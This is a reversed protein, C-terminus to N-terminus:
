LLINEPQDTEVISYEIDGYRWIFYDITAQRTGKIILTNDLWTFKYKKM